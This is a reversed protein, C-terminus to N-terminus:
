RGFMKDLEDKKFSMYTPKGNPTSNPIRCAFLDTVLAQMEKLSLATGAKISQQLSMSRLLKERRPFKLDNSFHKFQELLKEIGTHENGGDIGAPTGQLVFSQHQRKYVDLHTYSVSYYNHM